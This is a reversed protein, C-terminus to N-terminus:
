RGATTGAAPTAPIVLCVVTGRDVASRCLVDGGHAEVIRKAIALGLGSGRVGRTPSNVAQTFPQFVSELEQPPIGIGGDKVEIVLLADPSAPDVESAPRLLDMLQGPEANRGM